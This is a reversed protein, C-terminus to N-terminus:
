RRRSPTSGKGQAGEAAEAAEASGPMMETSAQMIKVWSQFDLDGLREPTLEEDFSWAVVCQRATAAAMAGPDDPHARTAAMIMDFSPARMEVWESGDDNLDVRKRILSTLPM